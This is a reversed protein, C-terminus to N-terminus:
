HDTATVAPKVTKLEEIDVDNWEPEDEDDDEVEEKANLKIEEEIQDKDM